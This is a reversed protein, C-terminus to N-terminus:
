SNDLTSPGAANRRRFAAREIRGICVFAPGEVGTPIVFRQPHLQDPHCLPSHLRWDPHCLTPFHLSSQGTSWAFQWPPHLFRRSTDPVHEGMLITMGLPTLGCLPSRLRPIQPGRVNDRQWCVASGEVGAHLFRCAEPRSSLANPLAAVTPIVFHPSHPWTPMVFHQSGASGPHCTNPTFGTPIVFHQGHVVRFM